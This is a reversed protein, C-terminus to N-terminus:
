FFSLVWHWTAALTQHIAAGVLTFWVATVGIMVYGLLVAGGDRVMLGAALLLISWGPFTNTLPIPMPLALALAMLCIAGFHLANLWRTATFASWRPRLVRELVRVVGRTAALVRRLFGPPLRADLLRRPLWPLRGFALQVSITAVILGLPTSMGPVSVPVLFPLALLIMLLEYARSALAAILERVAVAEGAFRAEIRALDATLSPTPSSSAPSPAPANM